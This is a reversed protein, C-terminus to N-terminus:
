ENIIGEVTKRDIPFSSNCRVGKILEMLKNIKNLQDFEVTGGTTPEIVTTTVNLDPFTFTHQGCCRCRGCTPCIGHELNFSDM